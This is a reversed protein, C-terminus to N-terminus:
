ELKEFKICLYERSFPVVSTIKMTLHLVLMIAVHFTSNRTSKNDNNSSPVHLKTSCGFVTDSKRINFLVLM